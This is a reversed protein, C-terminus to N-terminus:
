WNEPEDCHEMTSPRSFFRHRTGIPRAPQCSCTRGRSRLAANSSALSLAKTRCFLRRNPCTNAPNTLRFGRDLGGVRARAAARKVAAPSSIRLSPSRGPPHRSSGISRYKFASKKPPFASHFSNKATAAQQTTRLEAAVAPRYTPPHRYLEALRAHKPRTSMPWNEAAAPSRPALRQDDCRGRRRHRRRLRHTGTPETPVDFVSPATSRGTGVGQPWGTTNRSGVDPVLLVYHGPMVFRPSLSPVPSALSSRPRWRPGRRLSSCPAHGNVREPRGGALGTWLCLSPM